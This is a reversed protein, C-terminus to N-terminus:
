FGTDHCAKILVGASARFSRGEEENLQTLVPHAGFAGVKALSSIYVGYEQSYTSVPLIKKGDKIVSELVEAAAAAPAYYTAGKLKIVQAATKKVDDAIGYFADKTLLGSEECTKGKIFTQSYVAFMSDGHEGLIVSNVEQTPIGLKSAITSKLRISDLMTGLGIVRHPEFGGAKQLVYTMVDVPNSVVLHIANKGYETIEGAIEKMISTNKKMLDLRTDGPKRPVGATVVFVDSDKTEAYDGSGSIKVKGGFSSTCHMLDLAEGRAREAAVDVLVIEDVLKKGLLLFATTSGVRGAGIISVKM